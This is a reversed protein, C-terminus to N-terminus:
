AVDRIAAHFIDRDIQDGWVTWGESTRRGFMELRSGPSAREIFSRVQEPKGSHTGRDCEIWSKLSKDEFRKANGRIATLLFEHANRWYNGIGIQPKVWIFSSRFEFGWVDFIRPADFLFGNTTWLHLHADDAALERVPLACLEDVTMGNYHNGTAARTGQNDYLWPPDAYITGFKLGQEVLGALDDVTCTDRSPEAGSQNKARRQEILLPSLDKREMDPRIIGRELALAWTGDDLRTLDYLTQWSPPCLSLISESKLRPSRAVEMLRRATQPSFPLEGEVMATFAGHPLKSPGEKAEVLVSGAELIGERTKNWATTIRSVFEARERMIDVAVAYGERGNKEADYGDAEPKERRLAEPIDPMDNM